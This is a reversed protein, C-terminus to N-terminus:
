IEVKRYHRNDRDWTLVGFRHSLKSAEVAALMLVAPSGSCLLHDESSFGEEWLTKKLLARIRAINESSVKRPVVVKLEGFTEADSYDFGLDHVVFVNGM